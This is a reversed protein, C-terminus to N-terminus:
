GEPFADRWVDDWGKRVALKDIWRSLYGLDLSDRNARLLAVADARDIIRGALLKLLILDECAVVSIRIGTDPLELPVRRLLANELYESDALILDVQLDILAGPPEYLLQLFKLGGATVMPPQRKTRIGAQRLAALLADLEVDGLGVLLDVDRTTRVHKWAALAMGGVVAM